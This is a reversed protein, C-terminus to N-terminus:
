KKVLKNRIIPVVTYTIMAIGGKM